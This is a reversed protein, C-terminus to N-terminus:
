ESWMYVRARRKWQMDMICRVISLLSDYTRTRRGRSSVNGGDQSHQLLLLWWARSRWQLLAKSDTLPESPEHLM